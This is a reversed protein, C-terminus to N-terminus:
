CRATPSTSCPTRAAAGSRGARRARRAHRGGREPVVALAELGTPPDFRTAQGDACIVFGGHLAAAVNDPHGELESAHELLDADLEFLHDAAM